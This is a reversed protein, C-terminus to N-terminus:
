RHVGMCFSIIFLLIFHIPKYDLRFMSKGHRWSKNYIKKEFGHPQGGLKSWNPEKNIQKLNM